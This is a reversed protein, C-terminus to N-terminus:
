DKTLTMLACNLIEGINTSMKNFHNPIKLSKVINFFQQKIERWLLIRQKDVLLIQELFLINSKKLQLFTCM